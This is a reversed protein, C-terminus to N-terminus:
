NERTRIVAGCFSCEASSSDIWEVEDGRVPASCQPCTNPLRLPGAAAPQGIQATGFEAHLMGVAHQMQHAQMKRLINALFSQFRVLNGTNNLVRLAAQAEVLGGPEAGGEIFCHAARTHLEGALRPRELTEAQRALQSLATGAQAFKGKQILWRVKRFAVENETPVPRNPRRYGRFV